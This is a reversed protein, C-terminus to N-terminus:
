HRGTQGTPPAILAEVVGRTLKYKGECRQYPDTNTGMAVGERTWNPDALEARVREVANIKVVIKREFDDGIDLGLYEHTPRAFCNHSVVGNAIFDGTGTTIDFMPLTLGTDEISVVRLDAMSKLAQGEIDRKRSIAPDVLHFFRLHEKLGGRIRVAAAPHGHGLPEGDITADFEFRDLAVMIRGLIEPDTNSFRLHEL